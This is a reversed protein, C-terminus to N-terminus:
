SRSKPADYDVVGISHDLPEFYWGVQKLAPHNARVKTQGRTFVFPVPDGPIECSGTDTAIFIDDKSAM